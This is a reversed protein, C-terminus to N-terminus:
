HTQPRSWTDTYGIKEKFKLVTCLPQSFKLINQLQVLQFFKVHLFFSFSACHYDVFLCAHKVYCRPRKKKPLHPQNNMCARGPGRCIYSWRSCGVIGPEGSVQHYVIRKSDDMNYGDVTLFFECTLCFRLFKVGHFNKHSNIKLTFIEWDIAIYLIRWVRLLNSM